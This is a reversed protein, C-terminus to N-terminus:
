QNPLRVPLVLHKQKLDDQSENPEIVAQKLPAELKMRFTDDNIVKVADLLYQKNFGIVFEKDTDALACIYEVNDLFEEAGGFATRGVIKIGTKSFSLSISTPTGSKSCAILTVRECSEIFSKKDVEVVISPDIRFIKDYDLYEGDIVGSVVYVDQTEFSVHHNGSRPGSCSIIVDANKNIIKILKRMTDAPVIASFDVDAESDVVVEAVSARYGDLAVGRFTKSNSDYELKIAALMPRAMGPFYQQAAHEITRLVDILQRASVTFSFDKEVEPLEPYDKASMVSMKYTGNACCVTLIGDSETCEVETGEPLRAILASLKTDVVFSGAESVSATAVARVYKVCDYGVAEIKGDSARLFIGKLIEISSKTAVSGAAVGLVNAFEEKTIKFEM